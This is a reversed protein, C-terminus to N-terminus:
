KIKGRYEVELERRMDERKKAERKEYQKKGRAIGIELKILPGKTYWSLPVLTLNSGEVKSKLSILENKHLLLKRTRKPDYAEPRAYLYPFIQANVLYAEAGIIRVFAGELSAHGGKVSKVEMGLLHIGAEFRDQITYEHLAKKNIIKM